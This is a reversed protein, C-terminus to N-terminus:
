CDLGHRHRPVRAAGASDRLEPGSPWEAASRDISAKCGASGIQACDILIIRNIAM